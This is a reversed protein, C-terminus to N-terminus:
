GWVIVGLSFLVILSWIQFIIYVLYAVTFIGNFSRQYKYSNIRCGTRHYRRSPLNVVPSGLDIRILWIDLLCGEPYEPNNLYQHRYRYLWEMSIGYKVRIRSRNLLCYVVTNKKPWPMVYAFSFPIRIWTTM